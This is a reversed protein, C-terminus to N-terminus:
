INFKTKLYDRYYNRLTDSIANDKFYICEAITGVYSHYQNSPHIFNFLSFRNWTQNQTFHNSLTFRTVFDTGSPLWNCTVTSGSKKIFVISKGHTFTDGNSDTAWGHYGNADYSLSASPNTNNVNFVFLADSYTGSETKACVAFFSFNNNYTIPSENVWYYNGTSRSSHTLTKQNNFTANSGNYSISSGVRVLTRNNGSADSWNGGDTINESKWWGWPNGNSVIIINFSRTASNTGDSASISFTSTTDAGVNGATGTIAGTSSNLSLGTPLSGSQVSYSITQGADIDTASVSTNITLGALQSTLNGSATNWSPSSGADLADNLISSLGSANTVKVDYPENAVTLTTAPTLATISGSNNVTVTPSNYVTGDNGIFQVTAGSSFNSGTIAISTNASLATSPSISTVTPPSDIIKFQTGTYYEALGTTTNFRIQGQTSGRQATTGTAVKTGQTGTDTINQFSVDLNSNPIVGNNNTGLLKSLDRARTM